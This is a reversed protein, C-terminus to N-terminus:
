VETLIRIKQKKREIEEAKRFEETLEAIVGDCWSRASIETGDNAPISVASVDYLKSIGTITRLVTITKNEEDRETQRKDKSIQFGFSMRNTYGDRIEEYLQRGIETGSLDAEVFLGHQDTRLKLTGNSVRAYVRGEHNYQMITDSMDCSGFAGPDVQELIHVRYGEWNDYHFLEYPENFTTAYGTVERREGDQQRIEFPQARRYSRGENLRQDITKRLKENMKTIRKKM